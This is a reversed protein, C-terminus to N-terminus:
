CGSSPAPVPPRQRPAPVPLREPLAFERPARSACVRPPAQAACVRPPARIVHNVLEILSFSCTPLDCSIVDDDLGLRFCVGLSADIWSVQNYLEIFEEVNEVLDRGDQQLCGLRDEAM